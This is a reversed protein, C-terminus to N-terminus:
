AKTAERSCDLTWKRTPKNIGASERFIQILYKGFVPAPTAADPTWTLIGLATVAIQPDAQTKNQVNASFDIESIIFRVNTYATLDDVDGDEDKIEFTLAIGEAKETIEFDAAM